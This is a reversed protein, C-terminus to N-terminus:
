REYYEGKIFSTVDKNSTIVLEHLARTCSTYLFNKDLFTKYNEHTANPVIVFDFELGKCMSVPMIMLKALPMNENMLVLDPLNGLYEYYLEAQATTKCIIAITDYNQANKVTKEIFSAEKEINEFKEVVVKKGHRHVPNSHVDKIENCFNTIEYTSRYTKELGFIEKAGIAKAYEDEDKQTMIKEICQNIDGLICKPCDFIENFIEFLLIPYDQYEDIVLYKVNRKNLGLMYHKIYLISPIDEYKLTNKPTLEFKLGIKDLFDAYIDILSIKDFMTYLIRKVRTAVEDANQEINLKDLIYDTIWNIRVAPTKQIYKKSYLDDLEQSKIKIDGFNMDKPKFSLNVYTKLYKRLSDAFDLCNKYAVENLRNINETIEDLMNERTEFEPVLGRLEEHALEVFTESQINEEGLSPLVASIYDGFVYNPSLILIDSSSFKERYKYLLYAVKHLAISTKGSGAVGQVFMIREDDRILKNQERQITTIINKMKDTANKSLEKQLIDDDITLSSDFCYEMKSDKIKFQRKNTIEGEIIGKPAVYSAKGVEYDYYMSSVPARWDCILPIKGGNTLNFIGIYYSNNESNSSFDIKGFYPSLRQKKYNYLQRTEDNILAEERDLEQGGLMKEEGDIYYYQEAYYKKLQEFEEQLESIKKDTDVIKQKLVDDVDSLYKIEKEYELQNM